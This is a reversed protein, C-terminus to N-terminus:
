VEEVSHKRECRGTDWSALKIMTNTVREPTAWAWIIDLDISPSPPFFLSNFTLSPLPCRIISMNMCVEKKKSM